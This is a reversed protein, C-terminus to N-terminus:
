HHHVFAAAWRLAQGALMGALFSPICWTDPRFMPVKWQRRTWFVLPWAAFSSLVIAWLTWELGGARLAIPISTVMALLRMANALTTLKSLGQAPYLQEAISFRLGVLTLGLVQLMHGSATYRADYLFGVLTPAAVWLLGASGVV